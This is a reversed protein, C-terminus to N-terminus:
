AFGAAQLHLAFHQGFEGLVGYVYRDASETREAVERNWKMRLHQAVGLLAANATGRSPALKFKTEFLSISFRPKNRKISIFLTKWESLPCIKSASDGDLTM